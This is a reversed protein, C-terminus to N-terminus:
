ASQTLEEPRDPSREYRASFVQGRKADLVPLVIDCDAPANQAIVDLSPVGVLKVGTAQAMARAIAVAIRLGTFSGPGLSLYFHDIQASTWGQERTLDRIAPMLESAHRATPLLPRQALLTPGLGVAVSGHRGSTEIAVIRPLSLTTM